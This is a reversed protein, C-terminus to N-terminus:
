IRLGEWKGVRSVEGGREPESHLENRMNECKKKVRRVKSQVKAFVSSTKIM